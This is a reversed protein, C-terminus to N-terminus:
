AADKCKERPGEEAFQYSPKTTATIEESGATNVARSKSESESEVASEGESKAETEGAGESVGASAGM